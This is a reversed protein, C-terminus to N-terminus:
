DSKVKSFNAQANKVASIYQQEISPLVTQLRDIRTKGNKLIAQGSNIVQDITNLKSQVNSLATQGKNLEDMIRQSISVLSSNLDKKVYD